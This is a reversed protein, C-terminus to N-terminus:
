HCEVVQTQITNSTSAMRANIAWDNAEKHTPFRTAKDKFSMVGSEIHIYKMPKNQEFVRVYFM